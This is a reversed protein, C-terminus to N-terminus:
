EDVGTEVVLAQSISTLGPVMAEFHIDRTEGPALEVNAFVTTPSAPTHQILVPSGDVRGLGDWYRSLPASTLSTFSVRARRPTDSLGDHTLRIVLDYINGYMGVAEAASGSLHMLAPFAQVQSLGLGEHTSGTATNVMFATHAVGAPLPVQVVGEWRDYAYIGAERGFPPPPTGSIRYDGPADQRQDGSTMRVCDNIDASATAVVYVFVPGSTDFTFRADVEKFDGVERQWVIAPQHPALTETGTRYTSRMLDHGGGTLHDASVRFDPSDGLAMTVLESGSDDAVIEGQAYGSGSHTVTVETTASPNSLLVTVYLPAGGSSRDDGSDVLHHLYVGFRGSLPFADGGRTLTPRANGLLLGPGTVVEPNNSTLVPGGIGGGPLPQLAAAAPRAGELLGPFFPPADVPESGADVPESGADAPESGADAPESGADAPESEPTEVFTPLSVLPAAPVEGGVCNEEPCPAACGALSATLLALPFGLNSNLRKFDITFFLSSVMTVSGM